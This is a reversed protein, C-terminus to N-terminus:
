TVTISWLNFGESNVDITLDCVKAGATLPIWTEGDLHWDSGEEPETVNGSPAANNGDLNCTIGGAYTFTARHQWIDDIIADIRTQDASQNSMMIYNIYKMHAVDNGICGICGSLQLDEMGLPLADIDIVTTSNYAYFITLEMPLDLSSGVLNAWTKLAILRRPLDALDLVLATNNRIDLLSASSCRILHQIAILDCGIIHIEDIWKPAIKLVVKQESGDLAKSCSDGVQEEGDAFKWVCAPAGAIRTISAAFTGNKTTTLELYQPDRRRRLSM